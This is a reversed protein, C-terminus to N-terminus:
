HTKEKSVDLNKTMFMEWLERCRFVVLKELRTLDQINRGALKDKWFAYKQPRSPCLALHRLAFYPDSLAQEFGWEEPIQEEFWSTMNRTERLVPHENEGAWQHKLWGMKEMLPFSRSTFHILVPAFVMAILPVGYWLFIIWYNISLIKLVGPSM